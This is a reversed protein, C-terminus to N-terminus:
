IGPGICQSEISYMKKKGIEKKFLYKLQTYTSGAFVASNLICIHKNNRNEKKTMTYKVYQINCQVKSEKQLDM